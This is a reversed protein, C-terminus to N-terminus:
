ARRAVVVVNQEDVFDQRDAVRSELVLTEPAQAFEAYASCGDQEDRMEYIAQGAHAVAHHHQLGSAEDEVALGPPTDFAVALEEEHRWLQRHGIARADLEAEADAARHDAADAGRMVARPLRTREVGAVFRVD